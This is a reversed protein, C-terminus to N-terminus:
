PTNPNVPSPNPNPTTKGDEQVTLDKFFLPWENERHLSALLGRVIPKAIKNYTHLFDKRAQILSATAVFSKGTANGKGALADSLTQRATNIESKWPALVVASKNPSTEFGRLVDAAKSELDAPKLHGLDGMTKGPFFADIDITTQAPVSKLFYYFRTLVDRLTNTANATDSRENRLSSRDGTTKQLESEVDHMATSVLADLQAIDVLNSKGALSPLADLFHRGYESVEDYDIHRDAM